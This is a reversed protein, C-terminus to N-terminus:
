RGDNELRDLLDILEAASRERHRAYSDRAIEADGRAIADFIARHEFTSRVPAKRRRITAMRARHAQESLMQVMSRLRNNGALSLLEDHFHRDAEGWADLDDAELATEMDLMARELGALREADLGARALIYAAQPEPATLIEYIERMDRSSIPKVRLSAPDQMEVLGDRELQLVADHVAAPALGLRAALEAEAILTGPELNNQMIDFKLRQYADDVPANSM